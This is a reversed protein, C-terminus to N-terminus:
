GDALAGRLFRRVAPLLGLRPDALDFGHPQGALVRTAHPVRAARLARDLRRAQSAPVVPDPDGQLTLVPPDGRSVLRVPSAAADLAARRRTSPGLLSRLADAGIPSVRGLRALDTPGYLNVVARVRPLDAPAGPTDQGLGLLLALHGGASEGLAAVRTPDLGHRPGQEAIWRLAGRLDALPAPWSPNAPTGLTYDPAVVAYGLRALAEARSAVHMRDYRRWGGGHIALVVPWGGPPRPGAPLRLDLALPRGTESAFPLGAFLRPGEAAPRVLAPTADLVRRPELTEFAPRRARSAHRRNRM